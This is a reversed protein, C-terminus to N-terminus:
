DERSSLLSLIAQNWGVPGIEPIYTIKKIKIREDYTRDPKQVLFGIEAVKFMAEDNHSDGIAVTTVKGFLQAYFKKLIKCAKGKDNNGTLHYFRSGGLIKLGKKAAEKKIKALKEKQGLIFPEDYEREQALAAMEASLGSLTIIEELSMDGFGRFDLDFRQRYFNLFQRIKEYGKGLEIVKYDGRNIAQPLSFPFYDFPIYIAGGNEVIFPHHNNM